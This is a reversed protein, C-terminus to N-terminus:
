KQLRQMPDDTLEGGRFLIFYDDANKYLKNHENIITQKMRQQANAFPGEETGLVILHRDRDSVLTMVSSTPANTVLTARTTLANPTSAIPNWEFTRGNKVTAILIQGFNDLSWAAPDLIVNSTLSREGWATFFEVSAGSSHASRTGAVDRTIGTLDNSSIGTYSIFEAGVKIVGSTPFGTTSTLTISTGSGGTGATDDQLLGNLTNTVGSAGGYTSTGWGYGATQSLPGVKEYPNITAAGSASVSTGANTAMTITFTDITPVSVVEFPKETFNAATYGAGTPPTVSTFTFIDGAELGHTSKNVTVTPSTNVTTFTAGTIATALPTIDKYRIPNRKILKKIEKDIKRRRYMIEAEKKKKIRQDFKDDSRSRESKSAQLTDKWYQKEYAM